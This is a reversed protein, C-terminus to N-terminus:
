RVAAAVRKAVAACRQARQVARRAVPAAIADPEYETRTKLPLLRRLEGLVEAGDPGAQALLAVVQDHDDGASRRGLRAGCVADAASIGAHIALSTAAIAQGVNLVGAAAEAFEIAKGAYSRVQAGTVPRARLDRPVLGPSWNTLGGVSSWSVRM